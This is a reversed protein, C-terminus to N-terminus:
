NLIKQYWELVRQYHDQWSFNDKIRKRAAQGMCMQMEKNQILRLVAEVWEGVFFPQQILFGTQRDLVIEAIGGVASAIVPKGFSMAELAVLPFNEQVISPILVALAEAYLRALNEGSQFGLFEINKLNQGFERLKKEEPGTGIIKCTVNPLEKAIKLIMEVGKEQSLRGVFLLYGKSEFSIDEKPLDQGFPNIQIKEKPFGGAILQTQLYASPVFFVDVFREYARLWKQFRFGATQLASAWFSKKHFRTRAAQWIGMDKRYGSPLVPVNYQASVLHHDHVTMVIPVKAEHLAYLASCSLQTYLSHIHCVDPHTKQLLKELNHKTELSYFMRGLTKLSSIKWEINETQVFSPFYKSYPTPLNEPHQMAFPIVEHGQEQLWKTLAFIYRDAGSRLYYHKNAQLIRM